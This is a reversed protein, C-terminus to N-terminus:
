APPVYRLLEERDAGGSVGVALVLGVGPEFWKYEVVRPHLPTWNRTVATHRFSAAPVQAREELRVVDARDEAEGALYEERYTDGLTPDALMVVGASAGEVGAEWSGATAVVRGDELERTREGLYWVNGCVDQAYWDHTKEIPVGHESVIDRVVTAPVGQVVRTQELVEIRIKASGGDPDTERYVWRAGVAFPLYPNDIGGAFDAPDLVVTEDAQPIPVPCAGVTETTGGVSTSGLLMTLWIARRV